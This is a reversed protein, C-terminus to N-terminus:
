APHAQLGFRRCWLEYSGFDSRYARLTAESKSNRIHEATRLRLGELQFAAVDPGALHSSDLKDRRASVPRRRGAGAPLLPDPPMAPDTPEM